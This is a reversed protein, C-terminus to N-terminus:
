RPSQFPNLLTSVEELAAEILEQDAEGAEEVL